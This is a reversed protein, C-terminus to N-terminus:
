CFRLIDAHVPSHVLLSVAFASTNDDHRWRWAALKVNDAAFLDWRHRHQGHRATSAPTHAPSILRCRRTVFAATATARGDCGRRATRARLQIDFNDVRPTENYANDRKIHREPKGRRRPRRLPPSRPFALPIIVLVTSSSQFLEGSWRRHRVSGLAVASTHRM